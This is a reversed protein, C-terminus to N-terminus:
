WSEKLDLLSKENFFEIECKSIRLFVRTICPVIGTRQEFLIQFYM